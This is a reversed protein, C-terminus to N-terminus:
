PKEGHPQSSVATARSMSVEKGPKIQVDFKEGVKRVGEYVLVRRWIM